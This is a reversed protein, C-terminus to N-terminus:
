GNKHASIHVINARGTVFQSVKNSMVLKIISGPMVNQM